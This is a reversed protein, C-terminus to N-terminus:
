NISLPLRDYSKPLRCIGIGRDNTIKIKRVTCEYLNGWALLRCLELPYRLLLQLVISSILDLKISSASFYSNWSIMKRSIFLYWFSFKGMGVSSRSSESLCFSSCLYLHDRLSPSNTESVSPGPDPSFFPDLSCPIGVFPSRFWGSSAGLTSFFISFHRQFRPKM